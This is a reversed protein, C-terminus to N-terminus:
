FLTIQGEDNIELDSDSAGLDKSTGDNINLETNLETNQKSEKSVSESVIEEEVVIIEDAPIKKPETYPLSNILDIQNIKYKTLQNGLASVGKLSIFKEIDIEQDARRDKNREKAFSLKAVPRWDTSVIELVSSAHVSIFIEEKNENEILFRKVYHKQKEGDFYIVSIPKSPIWKELVIMDDEFHSTIEPVITKALGSQTIVLIRDEGRFEGVLDGRGDVNLRQITDDFWIKRPKLTSVGKEKLEVRKVANKTVINGKSVRGKINISAFNIDWKLKKISGVQRLLITVVEGEGNPNASFYLINSALKGNTLDYERDRTVSTVAFRKIYSAGAKGDKYIMNYITRSDKKKFVAVHIINKGIFTKSGVKTVIMKGEKTFVIIDDIDSCDCVYEDRKLGTGIFGEERNVFLKTNRIIVKTADVDDFTRIETKREKGEGYNTKLRKFYDVAYSILNKL